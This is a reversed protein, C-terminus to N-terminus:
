KARAERGLGRPAMLMCVCERGSVDITGRQEWIDNDGSM